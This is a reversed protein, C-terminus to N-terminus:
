LSVLVLYVVKEFEFRVSVGFSCNTQRLSGAFRLMPTFLQMTHCWLAIKKECLLGFARYNDVTIYNNRKIDGIACLIDNNWKRLVGM